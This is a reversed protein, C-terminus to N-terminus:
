ISRVKFYRHVQLGLTFSVLILIVVFAVDLTFLAYLFGILTDLGRLLIYLLEIM